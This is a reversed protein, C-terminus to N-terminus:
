PSNEIYLLTKKRTFVSGAENLGRVEFVHEGNSWLKTDYRMTYPPRNLIAVISGDLLFTVAGPTEGPAASANVTLLGNSPKKGAARLKALADERYRVEAQKVVEPVKDTTISGQTAAVPFYFVDDEQPSYNPPLPLPKGKLNLQVETGVPPLLDKFLASTPSLNLVLAAPDRRSAPSDPLLRLMKGEGIGFALGNPTAREVAPKPASAGPVRDTAGKVVRGVLRWTAGKDLSIEVPGYLTNTM